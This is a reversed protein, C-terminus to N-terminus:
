ETKNETENLNFPVILANRCDHAAKVYWSNPLKEIKSILLAWMAEDSPQLKTWDVCAEPNRFREHTEVHHYWIIAASDALNVSVEMSYIRDADGQLTIHFKDVWSDKLAQIVRKQEWVQLLMEYALKADGMGETVVKMLHVDDLECCLTLIEITGKSGFLPLLKQFAKVEQGSQLDKTVDIFQQVDV